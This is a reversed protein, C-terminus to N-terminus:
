NQVARYFEGSMPLFSVPFDLPLNNLIQLGRHFVSMLQSAAAFIYHYVHM